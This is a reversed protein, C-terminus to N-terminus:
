HADRGSRSAADNFVCFVRKIGFQVHRPPGGGHDPRRQGNYAAYRSSCRLPTSACAAVIAHADPTRSTLFPCPPRGEIRFVLSWTSPTARIPASTTGTLGIQTILRSPPADTLSKFDKVLRM